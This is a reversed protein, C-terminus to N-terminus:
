RTEPLTLTLHRAAALDLLDDLAADLHDPAVCTADIMCGRPLKGALGAPWGALCLVACPTEDADSTSTALRLFDETSSCLVVRLPPAEPATWWPAATWPASEAFVYGRLMSRGVDCALLGGPRDEQHRGTDITTQRTPEGDLDVEPISLVAGRVAALHFLDVKDPDIGRALMWAVVPSEQFAGAPEEEPAVAPSSPSAPASHPHRREGEVALLFGRPRTQCRRVKRSERVKRPIDEHGAPWPPSCRPNFDAWLVAEAEVDSLDFGHTLYWAAWLLAKHGGAGEIAPELKAAYSRARSMVDPRRASPGFSSSGVDVASPSPPAPPPTVPLALLDFLAVPLAAVEGGSTWRYLNGSRHTSPAVVIYGGDARVDLGDHVGAGGAVRVRNGLRSMALHDPCFFLRHEGGSGTRQAATPPLRGHETEFAALQAAGEGDVDLALLRRHGGMLLGINRGPRRRLDALVDVNTRDQWGKVAPHKGARTCAAGRPCQCAGGPMLGWLEVVRFGAEIYVGAADVVSVPVPPLFPPLVRAATM